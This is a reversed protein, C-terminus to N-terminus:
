PFYGECSKAQAIPFHTNTISYKLRDFLRSILCIHFQAIKTHFKRSYALTCCQECFVPLFIVVSDIRM